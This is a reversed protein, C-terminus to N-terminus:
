PTLNLASKQALHEVVLNEHWNRKEFRLAKDSTLVKVGDSGLSKQAHAM